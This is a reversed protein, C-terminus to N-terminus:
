AYLMSYERTDYRSMVSNLRLVPGRDNARTSDRSGEDLHRYNFINDSTRTLAIDAPHLEYASGRVVPVVPVCSWYPVDYGTCRSATETENRFRGRDGARKVRKGLGRSRDHSRWVIAHKGCVSDHTMLDDRSLCAMHLATRHAPCTKEVGRRRMACCKVRVRCSTEYRKVTM